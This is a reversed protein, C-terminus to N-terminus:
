YILLRDRFHEVIDHDILIQKNIEVSCGISECSDIFYDLYMIADSHLSTIEITNISGNKMFITAVESISSLSILDVKM